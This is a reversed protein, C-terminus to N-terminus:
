YIVKRRRDTDIEELRITKVTFRVTFINKANEKSIKGDLWDASSPFGQLYRLKQWEPDGLKPFRQTERRRRIWLCNIPPFRKTRAEHRYCGVSHTGICRSSEPSICRFSGCDRASAPTESISLVHKVNEGRRQLGSLVPQLGRRIAHKSRVIPGDGALQPCHGHRFQRLLATM